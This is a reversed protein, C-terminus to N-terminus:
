LYVYSLSGASVDLMLKFPAGLTRLATERYIGASSSLVLAASTFLAPHNINVCPRGCLCEPQRPFLAFGASNFASVSHFAAYWLDKAWGFEPVWVISLALLGVVECLSRSQFSLARASDSNLATM